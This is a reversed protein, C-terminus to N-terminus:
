KLRRNMKSEDVQLLPKLRKQLDKRINRGKEMLEALREPSVIPIKRSEFIDSKTFSSFVEIGENMLANRGGEARDVLVWAGVINVYPYRGLIIDRCKLLSQGSTLVDDVLLLRDFKKPITGDVQQATGHGKAKGRTYLFSEPGSSFQICASMLAISASAPGGLIDAKTRLTIKSLESVALKLGEKTTTVERCDLYWDSKKGSSLVFEGVKSASQLMQRLHEHERSM